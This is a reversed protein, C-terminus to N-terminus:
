GQKLLYVGRAEAQVIMDLEELQHILKVAEQRDCGTMECLLADTLKEQLDVTDLVWILLAKQSPHMASKRIKEKMKERRFLEPASYESITEHVDM